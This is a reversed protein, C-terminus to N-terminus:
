RDRGPLAVHRRIAATMDSLLEAGDVTDPWPDAKPVEFARGQGGGEESGEARQAKVFGDLASARVGLRSAAAEREREYDLPALQALRLIEASPETKALSPVCEERYQRAEEARRKGSKIAIRITDEDLGAAIAAQELHEIGAASEYGDLAATGDVIALFKGYDTEAGRMAQLAGALARSVDPDRIVEGNARDGPSDM